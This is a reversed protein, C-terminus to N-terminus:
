GTSVALREPSDLPGREPAAGLVELLPIETDLSHVIQQAQREVDEDGTVDAGAFWASWIDIIGQGAISALARSRLSTHEEGLDQAFCSALMDELYGRRLREERRLELTAAVIALLRRAVQVRPRELSLLEGTLWAAIAPVTAEGNSRGSIRERASDLAADFPSFVIGVKTPFHNYCTRIAVDAHEAIQALTTQEFGQEAFLEIAADFIADRTRFRKRERRGRM